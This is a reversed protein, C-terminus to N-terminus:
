MPVARGARLFILEMGVDAVGFAQAVAARYLDVQPRYRTAREQLQAPEVEDTKYDAVWLRGEARYLLDITGRLVQGDGCPMLVPVERGVIQSARLRRYVDSAGFTGLLQRLSEGLPGAEAEPVSDPLAALAAPIGSALESPDRQFDWQQLIWHACTGALRAVDSPLAQRNRRPATGPMAEVVGTPTRFVATSRASTWAETRRRWRELLSATDLAVEHSPGAKAREARRRPPAPVVIQPIVSAGVTLSTHAADGLHGGAIDDLVQWASDKSRKATRSGSLVLLDRARTMGVYMLRRHEAAERTALLDHLVLGALTRRDGVALGYLGSSWDYVVMPPTRNGQAGQHMGPLVVVPFELGKAKHITLVQLADPTAEALPQEAEDPPDEVRSTLDGVFEGFTGSPRDALVTALRAVKRLNAVAQEGHLSAAAVEELPIRAFVLAMADPLPRTRVECHLRALQRYLRGVTEAQPHSWSAVRAAERYDLQGAQRLDYLDRDTLGGLPSRLVGVLAIHDHPDAVVRLVNVLDVVEQRRYFHKEGDIVYPVGYRRLADVYLEAQTLKRFLLAVDGPRVGGSCLVDDALWRALAEAEARAGAAADFPRDEEESRVIHVRMGPSVASARRQPAGELRVNGPQVHARREFARDFVDNVPGLVVPDSRFNTTLTCRLGGDATVKEVVRDFAEIDARRFAYISQKPDGVICLKGPELVMEHWVSACAGQEESVALIVEYQLPDTDQFEDVLVARYDRKLRERVPPHDRLLARARALLGDFSVWGERALASRVAAVLPHLLKMLHNFYPHDLQLCQRALRTMRVAEDYDAHEWGKPQSPKGQLESRAEDPCDKLGDAGHAIVLDLVTLAAALMREVKRPKPVAHATLLTSAQRRVEQLRAALMPVIGSAEAQAQLVDLEVLDSCLSRAFAELEELSTTGLVTRWLDHRTGGENLEQDLWLDWTHAFRADFQSGDDERFAPDLGSELPHLRLVHAAFSHLTGIQAKDLDHLAAGAREAVATRSLAYRDCLAELTVAGGEGGRGEDAPPHALYQLRDRLRVKMETAAKNTFTLAVLRTVPVPHPEKVLLHVLRNVLLTTKGTGAGAVVVVNRDFTTEARQREGWDPILAPRNM